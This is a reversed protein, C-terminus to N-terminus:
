TALAAWSTDRGVSFSGRAGFGAVDRGVGVLSVEGLPWNKEWDRFRSPHPPRASHKSSADFLRENGRARKAPTVDARRM